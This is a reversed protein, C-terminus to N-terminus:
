AAEAEKQKVKRRPEDGQKAQMEVMIQRMEELQDELIKNKTDLATMDAALKNRDSSKLFAQATTRLERANPFPFRVIISDSADAVEEVSRIGLMKLAEAQDTSVGPWAAIPTGSDPMANGAKWADYAPKIVNWRVNAMMVAPNDPAVDMPVVRSLRSVSEENTQMSAKGIPCYLVMDTAKMTGDPRPTFKTWFKIIRFSM